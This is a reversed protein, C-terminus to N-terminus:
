QADEPMLILRSLLSPAQPKAAPLLSISTAFSAITLMWNLFLTFSILKCLFPGLWSGFKCSINIFLYFKRVTKLTSISEQNALKYRFLFNSLIRYVFLIPVSTM